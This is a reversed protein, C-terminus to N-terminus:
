AEGRRFSRTIEVANRPDVPVRTVAHAGRPLLCRECRLVASVVHQRV